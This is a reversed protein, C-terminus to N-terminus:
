QFNSDQATGMVAITVTFVLLLRSVVASADCTRHKCACVRVGADAGVHCVTCCVCQGQLGHCQWQCATHPPPLVSMALHQVQMSLLASPETGKAFLACVTLLVVAISLDYQDIM